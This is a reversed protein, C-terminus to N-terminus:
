ASRAPKTGPRSAERPVQWGKVLSGQAAAPFRSPDARRKGTACWARCKCTPAGCCRTARCRVGHRRGLANLSGAFATLEPGGGAAPRSRGRPPDAQAPPLQLGLEAALRPLAKRVSATCLRGGPNRWEDQECLGRGLAARSLEGRQLQGRLWNVTEPKLMRLGM